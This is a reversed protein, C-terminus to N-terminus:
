HENKEFIWSIRLILAWFTRRTERPPQSEAPEVGQSEGAEASGERFLVQPRQVRLIGRQIDHLFEVLEPLIRQVFSFHLCVSNFM